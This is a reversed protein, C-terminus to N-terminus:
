KPSGSAIEESADQDFKKFNEHFRNALERAKVEYISGDKWTNKPKLIQTPVGDVSKPVLFNFIPDPEFEAGNLRGSLVGDVLARTVEIPM